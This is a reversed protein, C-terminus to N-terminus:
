REWLRRWWPRRDRGVQAANAEGPGDQSRTPADGGATLAPIRGLAERHLVDFREREAALERSRQDLQGRLFAVEDQLATVLREDNQVPSRNASHTRETRQEHAQEPQPWLVFTRENVRISALTGRHVRMRVADVSINLREAAETFTLHEPSRNATRELLEPRESM